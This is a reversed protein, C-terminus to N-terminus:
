GASAARKAATAHHGRVRDKYRRVQRDIKDILGDIAAYMDEDAEQALAVQPVGMWGLAVAVAAAGIMTTKM